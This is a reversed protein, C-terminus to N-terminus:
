RSGSSVLVPAPAYFHDQPTPSASFHDRPSDANIKTGCGSIASSDDDDFM